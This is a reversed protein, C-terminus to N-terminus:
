LLGVLLFPDSRFLIVLPYFLWGPDAVDRGLFFTGTAHAPPMEATIEM